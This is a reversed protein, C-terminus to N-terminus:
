NASTRWTWNEMIRKKFQNDGLDAFLDVSIKKLTDSPTNVIALTCYSGDNVEQWEGGESMQYLDARLYPQDDPDDPNYDGDIGEGLDIWDLKWIGNQSIFEM